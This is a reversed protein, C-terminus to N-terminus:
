KLKFSGAAKELIPKYSSELSTPWNITVRYVMKGKAIFYARSGASSVFSYNIVKAPQGGITAGSVAAGRYIKKSNEDVFKGLDAGGANDLLDVQLTADNREGKIVVGKASARINFNNPYEVSYGSGNYTSFTESPKIDEMLAAESASDLKGGTMKIVHALVVSKEALEFVPKYKAMRSPGFSSADFYTMLSDHDAFIRYGAYGDEEKGQTFTLKVAPQGGLTTQETAGFTVGELNQKYAELAQEKTKGEEVGVEIRAGFDGDTFNQFRTKASASSYYSTKKGPQAEAVWAKPAKFSFKKVEDKVTVTEGPQVPTMDETKKGCGSLANMVLLACFIFAAISIKRHM